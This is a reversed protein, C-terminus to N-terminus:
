SLDFVYSCVKFLCWVVDKAEQLNQRAFLCVSLAKM